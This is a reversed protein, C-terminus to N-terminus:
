KKCINRWLKNKLDNLLETIDNDPKRMNGITEIIKIAIENSTLNTSDIIGLIFYTDIRYKSNDPLILEFDGFPPKICYTSGKLNETILDMVNIAEYPVMSDIQNIRITNM